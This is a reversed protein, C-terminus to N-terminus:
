QTEPAQSEESESWAKKRTVSLSKRSFHRHTGTIRLFHTMKPPQLQWIAVSDWRENCKSKIIIKKISTTMYIEAEMPLM